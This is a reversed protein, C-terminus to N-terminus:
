VSYDTVSPQQMVTVTVILYTKQFDVSTSAEKGPEGRRFVAKRYVAVPYMILEGPM